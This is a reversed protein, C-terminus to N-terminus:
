IPCPAFFSSSSPPPPFRFTAFFHFFSFLTIFFILFRYSKKGEKKRQVLRTQACFVETNIDRQWQIDMDILTKTKKRKVPCKYRFRLTDSVLDFAGADSTYM